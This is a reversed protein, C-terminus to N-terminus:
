NVFVFVFRFVFVFVFDFVFVPIIEKGEASRLKKESEEGEGRITL